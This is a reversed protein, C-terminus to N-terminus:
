LPGIFELSTMTTTKFSIRKHQNPNVNMYM